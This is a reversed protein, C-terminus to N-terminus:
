NLIQEVYVSKYVKPGLLESYEHKLKKHDEILEKEGMIIDKSFTKSQHMQDSCEKQLDRYLNSIASGLKRTV